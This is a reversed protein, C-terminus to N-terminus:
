PSLDATTRPMIRRSDYRYNLIGTVRLYGIRALWESGAGAWVYDSVVLNTTSSSVQWLDTDTCAPNDLLCDYSGVYSSADTIRVLVGEYPESVAQAVTVSAPTIPTGAGRRAVTASDLETDGFYELYTGSVDVRDGVSVTPALGEYVRIGSYTPGLAPDQVWIGLSYIGTVIVNTFTLATGETVRGRQVDEITTPGPGTDPPPSTDVPPSTDRPPVGTDMTGTDRPPSTDPVGTDTPPPGTDFPSTDGGGDGVVGTDTVVSTDAVSGDATVRRRDTGCASALVVLIVGIILHRYV